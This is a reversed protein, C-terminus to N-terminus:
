RCRRRSRAGSPNGEGEAVGAGLRLGVRDLGGGDVGGLFRQGDVAVDTERPAWPDIERPRRPRARGRALITMRGRIETTMKLRIESAM